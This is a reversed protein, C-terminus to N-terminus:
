ATNPPTTLRLTSALVFQTSVPPDREHRKKVVSNLSQIGSDIIDGQQIHTGNSSAVRVVVYKAGDVM